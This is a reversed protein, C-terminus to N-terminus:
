DIRYARLALAVLVIAALAVWQQRTTLQQRGNSALHVSTHNVSAVYYVVANRFRSGQDPIEM